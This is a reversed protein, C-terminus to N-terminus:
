VLCMVAFVFAYSEQWVRDLPGLAWLRTMVLLRQKHVEFEQGGLLLPVVEVVVLFM